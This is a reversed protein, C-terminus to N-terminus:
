CAFAAYDSVEPVTSLYECLTATVGQTRELTTGEPMDVLVQFENKNDYPLLKLPVLRLAPLVLAVLFLQRQVALKRHIDTQPDNWHPSDPFVERWLRVVAEEDSESYPRIKLM